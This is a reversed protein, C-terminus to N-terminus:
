PAAAPGAAGRRAPASPSGSPIWAFVLGAVHLGILVLGLHNVWLATIPIWSVAAFFQWVAFAAISSGAALVTGIVRAWVAGRATFRCLLLYVFVTGGAVLLYLLAIVPIVWGAFGLVQDEIREFQAIAPSLDITESPDVFEAADVARYANRRLSRYQLWLLVVALVPGLALVFGAAGWLWAAVRHPWARKM